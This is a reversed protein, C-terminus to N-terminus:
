AFQDIRNPKPCGASSRARAWRAIQRNVRRPGPMGIHNRKKMAASLDFVKRWDKDLRKEVKQVAELPLKNLPTKNKEAMSVLAGVTHHAQRFPVGREVLYDALDTALLNPDAAAAACTRRNIKTGALVAALM